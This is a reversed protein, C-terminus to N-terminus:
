TLRKLKDKVTTKAQNHPRIKIGKKTPLLCFGVFKRKLPSGIASKEQNVELKLTGELFKVANTMVRRG